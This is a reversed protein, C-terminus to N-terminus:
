DITIRRTKSNEPRPVRVTLVGSEFRAQVRDVDFGAALTTRYSFASTRRGRQRLAEAHGREQIQGSIAPEGDQVDVQLDEWRAAQCAWNSSGHM